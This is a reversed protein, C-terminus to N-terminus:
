VNNVLEKINNWRVMFKEDTIETEIIHLAYDRCENYFGLDSFLKQYASVIKPVELFPEFTLQPFLMKQHQQAPGGIVPIGMGALDLSFRGLSGLPDLNIGIYCRSYEKFFDDQVIHNHIAVAFNNEDLFSKVKDPQPELFLIKVKEAKKTLFLNGICNKLPCHTLQGAVAIWKERKQELPIQFQRVKKEYPFPMGLYAVPKDTFLKYYGVADEVLTVFADVTKLMKILLMGHPMFPMRTLDQYAGDAYGIVKTKPPLGERLDITLQYMECNENIFVYDYEELDRYNPSCHDGSWFDADLVHATGAISHEFLQKGHNYLEQNVAPAIFAVKSM